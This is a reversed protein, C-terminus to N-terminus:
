PDVSVCSGRIRLWHRGGLRPVHSKVRAGVPQAPAEAVLDDDVAVVPDDGILRETQSAHVRPWCRM